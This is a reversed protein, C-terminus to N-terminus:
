EYVVVRRGFGFREELTIERGQESLWRRVAHEAPLSSVLVIVREAQRLEKRDVVHFEGALMEARPPPDDSLRKAYYDWPQGQPFFTPQQEVSVIVDGPGYLELVREVAGPFDETGQRVLHLGALWALSAVGYGLMLRRVLFAPGRGVGWAALVAVPALSPLIYNWTFGGRSWIMAIAMAFLPTGFGSVALLTARRRGERWGLLVGWASLLLLGGASAIIAGRAAGAFSVNIHFLHGMAQVLAFLGTDDGGPPLAHALQERLGFIMWPACLLLAIGAAPLLSLVRPRLERDLMALLAAGAGLVLCYHVTYYHSHFGFVVWAILWRRRAPAGELHEILAVTVGTVALSLFAYMRVQTSWDLHLTSLAVILAAITARERGLPRALRAVLLVELVGCLIAPMRMAWAEDGLVNRGGAIVLFALPPHNDLRLTEFFSGLGERTVHYYSHFEDLVLGKHLSLGVRLGVALLLVLPLWFRSRPTTVGPTDPM